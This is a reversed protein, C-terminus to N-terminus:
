ANKEPTLWDPLARPRGNEDVCALTSTAQVCLTTKENKERDYVWVEYAHDLRARGGGTVTTRVLLEDDYRAPAKYRTELKTM